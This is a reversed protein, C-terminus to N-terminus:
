SLGIFLTVILSVLHFTNERIDETYLRTRMTNSKEGDHTFAYNRM